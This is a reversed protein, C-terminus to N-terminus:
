KWRRATELYWSTVTAFRDSPSNVRSGSFGKLEAPMAYTYSPSYLFAAPQQESLSSLFKTYAQNRAAPDATRRATELAQDAASDSFMALNLGPDQIQSSHWFPYPDLDSGLLQGYLLADYDRSRIVTRHIESAPIATVIVDVGLALWGNKIITATGVSEPQDVTTLVLSLTETVAPESGKAPTVIRKRLGDTSDIKWGLSDLLTGAGALNYPVPATSTASMGSLVPRDVPHGDGDLVDFLIRGKDISMTLARRVNKDALLPNQKPNFFVATVQPLELSVLTNNSSSAEERKDRPVFSLSQIQRKRLAELASAYDQYFQFTLTEIYPAPQYYNENRALVYSMVFGRKDRRLDEFKFPGSGVPKLNAETMQANSPSADKWVHRPLIGFDLHSLLQAYPEKLILTITLDDPKEVTVNKFFAHLPSKWAPDQILSLTFFVDDATLPQGDHWRVGERLKFHYTKQDPSVGYEQVLDPVVRGRGDTTYLRSFILRSLDNDVDNSLSLIPNLSHPSGVVGEVITGGVAPGIVTNSYYFGGGLLAAGLVFLGVGLRLRFSDNSSLVEPLHRIQRWTPLRATSLSHVLRKDWGEHERFSAPRRRNWGRKLRDFLSGSRERYSPM